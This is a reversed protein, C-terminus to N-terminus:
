QGMAVHENRNIERLIKPKLRSNDVGLCIFNKKHTNELIAKNTIEKRSVTDHFRGHNFRIAPASMSLSDISNFM